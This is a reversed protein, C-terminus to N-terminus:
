ETAETELQRQLGRNLADGDKKERVPNQLLPYCLIPRQLEAKMKLPDGVDPFQPHGREPVMPETTSDTGAQFSTSCPWHAKTGFLAQVADFYLSHVSPSPM